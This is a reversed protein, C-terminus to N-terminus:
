NDAWVVDYVTTMLRDLTEAAPVADAGVGVLRAALERGDVPIATVCGRGTTSCFVLWRDSARSGGGFARVDTLPVLMFEVERMGILRRYGVRFTVAQDAVLARAIDPVPAPWRLGRGARGDVRRSAARDIAAFGAAPLSLLLLMVVVAGVFLLALGILLELPLVNGRARCDSRGPTAQCAQSSARVPSQREFSMSAAAAM